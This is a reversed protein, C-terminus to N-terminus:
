RAPNAHKRRAVPLAIASVAFVGPQREVRECLDKFAAPVEALTEPQGRALDLPMFQDGDFRWSEQDGSDSAAVSRPWVLHDLCERWSAFPPLPKSAMVLVFAQLGPGESLPHGQNASSPYRIKSGRPPPEQDSGPSCLQPKGDTNLGFLLCYCDASLRFEVQLYDHELIPLHEPNTGLTRAPLRKKKGDQSLTIPIHTIREELVKPLESRSSPAVPASPAGRSVTTGLLDPERPSRGLAALLAAAAVVLALTSSAVALWVRQRRQLFHQLAEGFGRATAYRNQPATAMAKLCISELGRPLKPSLQRPPVIRGERASALTETVSRGQHPPRGTLLFYLVAGMGFVDSRPDIRDWESRAQEPSMYAPTGSLERLSDSGIPAALGFDVLRIVGDDGFIINEPKIDRHILGCAHIAALGEAVQEIWRAAMDADPKLDLRAQALNRGPIFEIVLFWENGERELGFCQALHPSRARVLAQGERAATLREDGDARRHYRKLVVHRKLDPDFAVLPAAQGGPNLNRVIVYKGIQPAPEEPCLLAARGGVEPAKPGEVDVGTAPPVTTLFGPSPSRASEGTVVGRVAVPANNLEPHARILEEEYAGTKASTSRTAERPVNNSTEQDAAM